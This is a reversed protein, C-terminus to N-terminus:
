EANSFRAWTLDPRARLERADTWFTVSRMESAIREAREQRSGAVATRPWLPHGVLGVAHSTILAPFGGVEIVALGSLAENFGRRFLEAAPEARGAWGVSPLQRGLALNAVDVALRWDLRGHLRQNDWSRLCDPCASDCDAHSGQGWVEAMGSAVGDLVDHVHHRGIEVAYGAGNQLTDSLYALATQHGQVVRPQTGATLESPDLDLAHQAGRRLAEAFSSMAALGSPCTLPDTNVVGGPVDLGMPLLLVADTVRIDGIAGRRGTTDAAEDSVKISGSPGDTFTFGRGGNDNITVITQRDLPWVETRDVELSEDPLNAWALSPEGASPSEDGEVLQGDVKTSSRFGAPRYTQVARMPTACVPCAEHSTMQDSIRATGCQACRLVPIPSGLPDPRGVRRPPAVFGDGTHVWGDKVVQAGPAFLSVAQGLPRTTIESVVKGRPDIEYLSRVGTPFGFMPLVGASALRESLANQIHESSQVALDILPPLDNRVWDVESSIDGDLAYATLRKVVTGVEPSRALWTAIEERREEWQSAPGFEGHVSDGRATPPTSCASFARRLVEAAIVRRVVEHRGMDIFPAPPIDGTIRLPNRFYYDDHTRDRAVTVAFSFTQGARGARGVRQQYNFRQPPMNGMVTAQLAGIDVGAELTTTVSLVDLESVLRNERPTPYLAGRFARQRRRGESAPSTQGTLEAAAMRHPRQSALWSFYEGLEGKGDSLLVTGNCTPRTCVGGSAHLHLRGCFDCAWTADAPHVELTLGLDDLPVAHATQVSRLVDSTSAIVEVAPLDHRGAYRRLYDQAADNLPAKYTAYRDQPTWRDGMLLLRLASAAPQQLDAPAGAPMLWAVKSTELDHANAGSLLNGLSEALAKRYFPRANAAVSSALPNWLGSEPPDFALYWPTTGDELTTLGARPGGPPIGLRLLRDSISSLMQPWMLAPPVSDREYDAILGVDDETARGANLFTYADAVRPNAAAIQVARAQLSPPVERRANMALLVADSPPREQLVEGVVQRLVDQYHHMNLSLTVRAAQERSDSFVITKAPPAAPDDHDGRGLQNLVNSVALEVLQTPAQTHARIPSRVSGSAFRSQRNSHDCRPCRSPLAPPHWEPAHEHGLTTGTRDEATLALFGLLPEFRAPQFSFITQEGAGRSVPWTKTRSPTRSPWYWRYQATSRQHVRPVRDHHSSPDLGLFYGGEHESQVWGGLSADGCTFCYLLELVRGGCACFREPRVFLRGVGTSGDDDPRRAAVESCNPNSCAYIGRMTRVFTHARFTTASRDRSSEYLAEWVPTLDVLPDGTLREAVVSSETARVRGDDVCAATVADALHPDEVLDLVTRPAPLSPLLTKAGVVTTFTAAPLGFLDQLYDSEQDGLSASTGIVRIQPSDPELGLRLMLNRLIMAIEAGTTGRYLHLEDVVLTFVNDVSQELWHRTKAFIPRELSRMLMVNLMSYNTVLVDPPSAIMDWRTILEDHRPDQLQDRLDAQSGFQDFERQLERLDSAAQSVTEGGGRPGPMSTGGPSASTYRGFWLEPGGQQRIGRVARRLRVIQDEVLANTPYLVISRLAAPREDSRLRDWRTNAGDWWPRPPATPSWTRSERILRGLLPLLFAETKGSGTGTTIIPNHPSSSGLAISLADVQHQGLKVDEPKVGFVSGLLLCSEDATLGAAEAAQLGAHTRPQPVVPEILPDLVLSREETLLTEREARLGDDRLWYTTNIYRILAERITETLSTPTVASM